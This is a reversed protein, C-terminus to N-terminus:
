RMDSFLELTMQAESRAPVLFVICWAETKGRSQTSVENEPVRCLCTGQQLKLGWIRAIRFVGFLINEERGANGPFTQNYIWQSWNSWMSVKSGSMVELLHSIGMEWAPNPIQGMRMRCFFRQTLTVIFFLSQITTAGISALQLLSKWKIRHFWEGRESHYTTFQGLLLAIYLQISRTSYLWAVKLPDWTMDYVNYIQTVKITGWCISTNNCLSVRNTLHAHETTDRQLRISQLGGPEEAWSIRPALISFHTAMEWALPAEQGLSWVWM